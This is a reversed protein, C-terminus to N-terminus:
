MISKICFLLTSNFINDVFKNYNKKDEKLYDFYKMCKSLIDCYFTRNETTM